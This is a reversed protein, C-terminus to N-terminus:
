MNESHLKYEIHIFKVFVNLEDKLFATETEASDFWRMEWWSRNQVCETNGEDQHLFCFLTSNITVAPLGGMLQFVIFSMKCSWQKYSLILSLNMQKGLQCSFSLTTQSFCLFSLCILISFDWELCGQLFEVKKKFKLGDSFTWGAAPDEFALFPNMSMCLNLSWSREEPACRGTPTPQDEERMRYWGLIVPM